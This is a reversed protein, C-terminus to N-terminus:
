GPTGTTVEEYRIMALLQATTPKGNPSLRTKLDFRIDPQQSRVALTM